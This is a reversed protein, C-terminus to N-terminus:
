IISQTGLLLVQFIIELCTLQVVLTQLINSDGELSPESM